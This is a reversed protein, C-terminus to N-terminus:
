IRPLEEVGRPHYLLLSKQYMTISGCYFPRFLQSEITLLATRFQDNSRGIPEICIYGCIDKEGLSFVQKLIGLKVFVYEM